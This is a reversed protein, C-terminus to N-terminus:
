VERGFIWDFSVKPQLKLNADVSEALAMYREGQKCLYNQARAAEGSVSIKEVGWVKVLHSIIQAYDTFTYIGARQAVVAFHDFLMPDRGDTMFQGPMVILTRLMTKMALVADNPDTRFVEGMAQTYFSEHRAEDGAIRKCIKALFLDGQAAALRAENAHSISTAREQFSTYILGCYLDPHTRPDFGRAILEHTTREVSRMNVRGCLRLYTGLLDGHRNEEATWGRMWKAWPHDCTGTEDRAIRNLAISYNPLAEETVLAGVLSVLAADSLGAASARLAELQERWDEKSLDPLYDSPHWAREMPDLLSLREAVFPNMAQLAEFHPAEPM